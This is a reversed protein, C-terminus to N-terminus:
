TWLFLHTSTIELHIWGCGCLSIKGSTCMIKSQTGDNDETVQAVQVGWRESWRDHLSVCRKQLRRGFRVVGPEQFCRLKDGPAPATVTPRSGTTGQSLSDCCCITTPPPPTFSLLRSASVPFIRLTNVTQVSPLARVKLM